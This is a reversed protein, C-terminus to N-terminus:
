DPDLSPHICCHVSVDKSFVQELANQVESQPSPEDELLVVTRACLWFFLPTAVSCSQSHGQTAWDSGLGSDSQVDRSLDSFPEADVSGM